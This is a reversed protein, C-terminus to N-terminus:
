VTTLYCLPFVGWLLNADIVFCANESQYTIFLLTVLFSHALLPNYLVVFIEFVGVKAYVGILM